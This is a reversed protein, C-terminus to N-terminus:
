DVDKEYNLKIRQSVGAETEVNLSETLKRKLVLSTQNNFLGV